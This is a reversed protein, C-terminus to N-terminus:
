RFLLGCLLPLSIASFATSLLVASSALSQDKGYRACFMTTSAAAPLAFIVAFIGAVFADVGMLTMAYWCIVPVLIMKLALALYSKWSHASHSGKTFAMACGIILMSFPSTGQDVFSLFDKAFAPLKLDLMYICCAMVSSVAVPSLLDKLTFGRGGERGRILVVGYSYSLLTHILTIVAAFFVSEPGFIVRLVPYGIFGGNSFLMTFECVGRHEGPVRLLAMIGKSFLILLVMSVASMLMLGLVETNELMREGSFASSLVTCPLTLNLVVKSLTTNSTEDMVGCKAGVFGLAATLFLIGMQSFVPLMDM